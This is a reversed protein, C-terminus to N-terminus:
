KKLDFQKDDLKQKELLEKSKFHGQDMLQKTAKYLLYGGVVMTAAAGAYAPMRPSVIIKIQREKPLKKFEEIEKISKPSLDRFTEIDMQNIANAVKEAEDSTLKQLAKQNKESFNVKELVKIAESLKSNSITPFSSHFCASATPCNGDPTTKCYVNKVYGIVQGTLKVRVKQNCINSNTNQDCDFKGKIVRESIPEISIDICGGMLCPQKGPLQKEDANAINFLSTITLLILVKRIMM